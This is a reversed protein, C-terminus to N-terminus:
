GDKGRANTFAVPAHCVAGIPKDAKVFAEILAISTPNDPMDWGFTFVVRENPVVEVFEGRGLFQSAVLIRYVGGPRADIESDCM